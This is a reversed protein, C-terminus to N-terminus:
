RVLESCPPAGLCSHLLSIRQTTPLCSLRTRWTEHLWPSTRVLPMVRGSTKCGDQTYVSVVVVIVACHQRIRRRHLDRVRPHLKSVSFDRGAKTAYDGITDAVKGIENGVNDVSRALWSGLSAALASLAGALPEFHTVFACSTPM